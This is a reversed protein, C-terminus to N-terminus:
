ATAKRRGVVSKTDAHYEWSLGVVLGIMFLLQTDGVFHGSTWSKALTAVSWASMLATHFPTLYKKTDLFRKASLALLYMFIIFGFIGQEALIEVFVNHPYNGPDDGLNAAYPFGGLGAGLFPHELWVSLGAAALSDRSYFRDDAFPNLIKLLMREISFLKFESSLVTMFYIIDDVYVLGVIVVFLASFIILYRQRPFRYLGIAATALVAGAMGGRGGTQLMAFISASAIVALILRGINNKMYFLLMLLSSIYSLLYCQAYVQYTGIADTAGGSSFDPNFFLYTMVAISIFGICLYNLRTQAACLGLSYCTPVITLLQFTYEGKAITSNSWQSSALIIAILILLTLNINDIIRNAHKQITVFVVAAVFITMVDLRVRVGTLVLIANQIPGTDIVVLVAITLFLSRFDIFSQSGAPAALVSRAQQRQM